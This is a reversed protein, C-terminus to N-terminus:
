KARRVGCRPEMEEPKELYRQLTLDLEGYIEGYRVITIFKEDFADPHFTMAKSLPYGVLVINLVGRLMQQFYENQQRSITREFRESFSGSAPNALEDYFDKAWARLEEKTVPWMAKGDHGNATAWKQVEEMTTLM